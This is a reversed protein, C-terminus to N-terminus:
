TVADTVRGQLTVGTALAFGHELPGGPELAAHLWEPAMAEDPTVACTFRGAPLDDFAFRGDGDTHADFLETDQENWARLRGPMGKGALALRGRFTCPPGLVIPLEDGPTLDDRRWRAHGAHQVQVRLVLGPPVQLGFRGHKDVPARQ